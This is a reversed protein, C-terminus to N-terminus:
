CIKHVIQFSKQLIHGYQLNQFVKASVTSLSPAKTIYYNKTPSGELTAKKNKFPNEAVAPSFGRIGYAILHSLHYTHL